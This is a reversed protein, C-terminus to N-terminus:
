RIRLVGVLVILNIINIAVIIRIIVDVLQEGYDELRSFSDEIILEIKKTENAFSNLIELNDNLIDEISIIRQELNTQSFTNKILSMIFLIYYYNFKM